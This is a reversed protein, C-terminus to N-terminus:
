RSRYLGKRIYYFIYEQAIGAYKGFRAANLNNDYYKAARAIWTDIPFADLKGFGFLLVCNAVKPGVGRLQLLKERAEDTALMKLEDLKIKGEVVAGAASILYESRYGLGAQRLNPERLEAIVAASPFSYFEFGGFEIREGFLSCIKYISSSIKPINNNQSIIYSGLMEWADQRLVRLGHGYEIATQTFPHPDFQSLIEDYDRGLDFYDRWFEVTGRGRVWISDGDRWVFAPFGCVIGQYFETIKGGNTNTNPCIDSGISKTGTEHQTLLDFNGRQWRFCQGCEFTAELSIGYGTRVVPKTKLGNQSATNAHLEAATGICSEFVLRDASDIETNHTQASNNKVSKKIPSNM